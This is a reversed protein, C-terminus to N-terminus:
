KPRIAFPVRQSPAITPPMFPDVDLHQLGELTGLDGEFVDRYEEIIEQTTQQKTSAIKEHLGMQQIVAAGPLPTLNENVVIFEVSYKKRNRPNRITVRCIGEPKLETKNWLQLVRKTLHIDEKNVYKIPLVNVTVGCDIRFIQDQILTDHLCTCFNCSQALTRLEGVYTDISEGEKQDRSNFVSREYMENTEGSVFKDFEKII